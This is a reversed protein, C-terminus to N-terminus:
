SAPSTMYRTVSLERYLGGAERVGRGGQWKGRRANLRRFPQHQQGIAKESGHSNVSLIGILKQTDRHIFPCPFSLLRLFYLTVRMWLMIPWRRRSAPPLSCTLAKRRCTICWLTPLTRLSTKQSATMIRCQLRTVNSYSSILVSLMSSPCLFIYWYYINNNLLKMTYICMKFLTNQQCIFLCCYVAFM